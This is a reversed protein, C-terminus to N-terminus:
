YIRRVNLLPVGAAYRRIQDGAFRYAREKWRRSTGATHPTIWLNPADWLTSDAPLPEPDTVDLVARLRGARLERELAVQDVMPGRAANVILAGARMRSLASTDIMGRTRETLPALLVVVDSLPLLDDLAEPGYVADRAASAIGTVVAGFPRLRAEVARGISGYGVILVRKGDLDDADIAKPDTTLANGSTDWRRERQADVYRLLRREMMLIATVVWEAVPGDHVGSANCVTIREPVLPLLWEVGANLTQVLRLGGIDALHPLLHRLEAGFVIVDARLPTEGAALTLLRVQDPLAGLHEVLADASLAVDIPASM